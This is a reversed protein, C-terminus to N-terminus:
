NEMIVPDLNRPIKMLFYEPIFVMKWFTYINRSIDNQIELNAYIREVSPPGKMSHLVFDCFSLGTVLLQQQIQFHYSHKRKLKLSENEVKFCSHAPLSLEGNKVALVLEKVSRTRLIKLCKIEIIEIPCGDDIIIGDPSARLHIHNRNM